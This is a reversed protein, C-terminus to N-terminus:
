ELGGKGYKNINEDTERSEGLDRGGKGNIGKRKWRNKEKRESWLRRM